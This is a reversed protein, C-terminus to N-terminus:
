GHFQAQISPKPSRHATDRPKNVGCIPCLFRKQTGHVLGKNDFAEIESLTLTQM